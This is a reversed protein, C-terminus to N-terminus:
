LEIAAQLRSRGVRNLTRRITTYKTAPERGRDGREEDVLFCGWRPQTCNGLIRSEQSGSTRSLRGEEEFGTKCGAEKGM